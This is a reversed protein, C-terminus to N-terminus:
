AYLTNPILGKLIVNHNQANIVEFKFVESNAKISIAKSIFEPHADAVAYEIKHEESTVETRWCVSISTSPDETINLIIRDPLGTPKYLNSTNEDGEAAFSILPFNLLPLVVGIKLSSTLFKRRTAQKM